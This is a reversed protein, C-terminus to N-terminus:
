WLQEGVEAKAACYEVEDTYDIRTMGAKIMVRLSAPNEEFAGCVVQTFGQELLYSIAGKLAETCYGQNHFAPLLAYGMEISGDKVEVDNIMGICQGNLCIASVYRDDRASREMLRAFLEAGEQRSALDPFMYTRSVFSDMALDIMNEQDQPEFPRIELRNTKYRM